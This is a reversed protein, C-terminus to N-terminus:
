GFIGKSTCFSKTGIESSACMGNTSTTGGADGILLTASNSAWALASGPLTAIPWPPLPVAICRETCNSLSMAPTSM